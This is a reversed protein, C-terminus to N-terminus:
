AHNGFLDNLRDGPNAAFTEPDTQENDTYPNEDVRDTASAARPGAALRNGYTCIINERLISNTHGATQRSACVGGFGACGAWGGTDTETEESSIFTPIIGVTGRSVTTSVTPSTLIVAACNSWITDVNGGCTCALARPGFRFCNASLRTFTKTSECSPFRRLSSSVDAKLIWCCTCVALM